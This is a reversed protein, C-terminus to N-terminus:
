RKGLDAKEQQKGTKLWVGLHRLYLFKITLIIVGFFEFYIIASNSLYYYTVSIILARRILQIICLRVQILLKMM